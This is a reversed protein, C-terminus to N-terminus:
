NGQLFRQKQEQRFSETLDNLIAEEVVNKKIPADQPRLWEEPFANIKQKKKQLEMKRKYLRTDLPLDSFDEDGKRVTKAENILKECIVLLYKFNQTPYKFRELSMHIQNKIPNYRKGLLLKLKHQEVDNLKAEKVFEDFDATITVKKEAPHSEGVYNTYRVTLPKNKQPVYESRYKALLPLEYAAIRNYERSIRHQEILEQANSSYEDYQYTELEGEALPNFGGLKGAILEESSESDRLNYIQRIETKSVGTDDATSLLANLEDESKTYNPGLKLVRQQYLEFIKASPLNRWERPHLYLETSEISRQFQLASGSFNRKAIQFLQPKVLFPRM